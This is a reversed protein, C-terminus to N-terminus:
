PLRLQQARYAGERERARVAPVRHDLKRTRLRDDGSIGSRSSLATRFTFVRRSDRRVAPLADKQAVIEKHVQDHLM